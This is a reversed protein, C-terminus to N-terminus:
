IATLASLRSPSGPFFIQSAVIKGQSHSEVWYVHQQICLGQSAQMLSCCSYAVYGSVGSSSAAAGNRFGGEARSLASEDNLACPCLTISKWARAPWSPPHELQHAFTGAILGGSDVTVIDLVEELCAAAVDFRTRRAFHELRDDDLEVM